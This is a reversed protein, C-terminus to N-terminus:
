DLGSRGPRGGIGGCRYLIFIDLSAKHKGGAMVFSVCFLLLVLYLLRGGQALDFIGIRYANRKWRTRPGDRAGQYVGFGVGTKREGKSTM